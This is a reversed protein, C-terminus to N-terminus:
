AHGLIYLNMKQHKLQMNKSFLVCNKKNAKLPDKFINEVTESTQNRYYLTKTVELDGHIVIYM